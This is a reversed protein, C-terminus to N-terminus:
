KLHPFLLNSIVFYFYQLSRKLIMSLLLNSHQTSTVNVFPFVSMDDVLPLSPLLPSVADDGSAAIEGSCVVKNVDVYGM